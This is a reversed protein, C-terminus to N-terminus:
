KILALKLFKSQARSPRPETPISSFESSNEYHISCQSCIGKVDDNSKRVSFSFSRCGKTSRCSQACAQECDDVLGLFLHKLIYLLNILKSNSELTTTHIANIIVFIFVLFIKM